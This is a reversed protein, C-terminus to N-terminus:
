AQSNKQQKLHKRDKQKIRRMRTRNTEIDDGKRNTSTNIKTGGCKRDKGITMTSTQRMMAEGKSNDKTM